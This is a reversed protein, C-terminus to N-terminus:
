EPHVVTRDGSTWLRRIEWRKIKWLGGQGADRVLDMFYLAGATYSADREVFAEEPRMHYAIAHTSLSATDADDDKMDVRVNTVVHTTVLTFTRALLPQVSEWGEITTTNDITLSTGADTVVASEVLTQDNTDLGLICRHLADAAAERPTLGPLKTTTTRTTPQSM